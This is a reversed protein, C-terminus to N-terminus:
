VPENWWHHHFQFGESFIKGSPIASEKLLNFLSEFYFACEQPSRVTYIRACHEFSKANTVDYLLCAVDCDLEVSSLIDSLGVDIERLQLM